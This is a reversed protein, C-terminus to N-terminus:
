SRERSYAPKPQLPAFRSVNRVTWISVRAASALTSSIAL